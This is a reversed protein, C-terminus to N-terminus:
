RSFMNVMKAFPEVAAKLDRIAENLTDIDVSNLKDLAEGFTEMNGNMFENMMIGTEKLSESMDDIKKLSSEAEVVTRDIDDLTKIAKPVVLALVVAIIIVLTIACIATIKSFQAEKKTYEVIKQLEDGRINEMNDMNDINDMNGM